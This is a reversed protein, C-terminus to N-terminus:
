FSRGESQWSFFWQAKSHASALDPNAAAHLQRTNPLNQYDAPPMAFALLMGNSGNLEM